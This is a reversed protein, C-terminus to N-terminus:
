CTASVIMNINDDHFRQGAVWPYPGITEITCTNVIIQAANAIGHWNTHEVQYNNDNCWWVAANSNCSVQACRRPGPGLSPRGPLGRLRDIAEQIRHAAAYSFNGCVTRDRKTLSTEAKAAPEKSISQLASAAIDPYEIELQAMVQEVTGNFVSPKGAEVEIEWSAEEVEYGEIPSTATASALAALIAIAIASRM